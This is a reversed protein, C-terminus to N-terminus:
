KSLRTVEGMYSSLKIKYVICKLTLALQTNLLIVYWLMPTWNSSALHSRTKWQCVQYIDRSLMYIVSIYNHDINWCKLHKFNKKGKDISLITWVQRLNFASSAFLSNFRSHKPAIYPYSTASYIDIKCDGSLQISGFARYSM